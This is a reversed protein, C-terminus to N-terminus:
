TRAALVQPLEALPPESRLQEYLPKRSASAQDLGIHCVSPHIQQTPLLERGVVVEVIELADEM